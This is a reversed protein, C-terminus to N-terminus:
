NTKMAYNRILEAVGDEDNSRELVLDAKEKLVDEANKVAVGLGAREIMPLDNLNDGVAIAQEATLGYYEAIKELATAKSYERSSIEVMFAASYTVYYRAGFRQQLENYLKEKQEPHVLAIIKRVKIQSKEIFASLPEDSKVIAKAGVIREYHHLWQDDMNSYYDYTDYVHIHQNMAQLFDCIEGAGEKDIYGDVILRETEIDAVISGQFCALLGSIGLQKAVQLASSLMRGTCLAFRGGMAKYENIACITEDSVSEDSRLLTGDFDSLILPYKLAKM